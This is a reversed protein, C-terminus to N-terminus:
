VKILDTHLIDAIKEVSSGTLISRHNGDLPQVNPKTKCVESLGYDDGMQVYNDIARVLSVQGKFTSTPKYKDAAVLKYYFSAAAASLQDDPFPAIGSIIKTTKAVREEWTPLAMLEAVTKQQDIDKFQMAFYVLAESQEAPINGKISKTNRAKGTHTAVYSPSGDILLLKVQDGSSEMQVGMEFAVCAGFSYGILTYPGKAQVTKIQTNYYKALDGISTLPTDKTCQLGYVPVKINKALKQLASVVGEIPHLVFVPAKTDKSDNM